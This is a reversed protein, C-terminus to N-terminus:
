EEESSSCRTSSCSQPVERCQRPSTAAHVCRRGCGQQVAGRASTTACVPMDVVKDLARRSCHPLEATKEVGASPFQVPVVPVDIVKDTYQLQLIEITRFLVMPIQRQVVVSIDVVQDLFRRVTVAAGGCNEATDSGHAGTLVVVPMARGAYCPCRGGPLSCSRLEITNQVPLVMPIQRQPVFPPRLALRLVIGPLFVVKDLFQVQLCGYRDGYCLQFTFWKTPSIPPPVKWQLDAVAPVQRVHECLRGCGGSSSSRSRSGQGCRRPRVGSSSPFSSSKPTKKKRRKKRKRRRERRRRLADSRAVLFVAAKELDSLQSLDRGAYMRVEAELRQMKTVVVEEMRKVEELERAEEEEQARALLSQQLLFQVTADDHLLDAVLVVPLSPAVAAVYGVTVAAQPGAVESLPAPRVGPPPQEQRRPAYYQEHAEVEMASATAPGRPANHQEPWGSRPASHHTAAALAAAVSRQEHRWWSRLRRQRRRM